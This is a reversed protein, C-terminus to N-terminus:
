EFIESPDKGVEYTTNPNFERFKLDIRASSSKWEIIENMSFQFHLSWPHQNISQKLPWCLMWAVQKMAVDFYRHYIFSSVFQFFFCKRVFSSMIWFWFSFSNRFNAEFPIKTFLLYAKLHLYHRILMWIIIKIGQLRNEYQENCCCSIDTPSFLIQFYFQGYFSSFLSNSFFFYDCFIFSYCRIWLIKQECCLVVNKEVNLMGETRKVFELRFVIEYLFGFINLKWITSGEDPYVYSRLSISIIRFYEPESISLPRLVRKTCKADISNSNNSYFTHGCQSNFKKFFSIALCKNYKSFVTSLSLSTSM